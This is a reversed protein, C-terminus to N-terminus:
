QQQLLQQFLSIAAANREELAAFGATFGVLSASVQIVQDPAPLPVLAVIAEGGARMADVNGETEVDLDLKHYSIDYNGTNTNTQYAMRKFASRAEEIRLTEFDKNFDKKFDQAHCFPIAILFCFLTRLTM